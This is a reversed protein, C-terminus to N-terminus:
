LFNHLRTHTHTHTYLPRNYNRSPVLNENAIVAAMIRSSFMQKLMLRKINNRDGDRKRVRYDDKGEKNKNIAWDLAGEKATWM